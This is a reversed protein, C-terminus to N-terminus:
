TKKNRPNGYLEYAYIGSFTVFCMAWTYMRLEIGFALARPSFGILLIFLVTILFSNEKFLKKAKIGIFIMTLILPTISVLKVVPVSYGFIMTFIKSIFYYLPPHVDTATVKM